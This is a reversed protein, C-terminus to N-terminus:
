VLQDDLQVNEDSLEDASVGILTLTNEGSDDLSIELDRGKQQSGALLEDLTEFSLGNLLISDSGADFDRIVDKGSQGSIEFTDRGSGGLLWDNGEGGALWDNGSGGNLVDSGEGGNLYDNGSGAVLLDNGQGGDLEDKGGEGFLQDDGQEGFLYDQHDGGHAIDNGTGAYIWDNGAGGQLQDAGERGYIQDDGEGGSLQDNGALGDLFDDGTGGSLVDAGLAGTLMGDEGGITTEVPVTTQGQLVTDERVALNQIRTDAEPETEESQYAQQQFNEKLYEALVDQETGPAAFESSGSDTLIQDLEVVNAADGNTATFEGFPYGDGGGALFNLTVIRINMEPAVALEGNEVLIQIVEGQENVLAASRIRAGAELTADFSFNVGSVQPFQGPTNGAGTAAVGHELVAVLQEATLTLLTLSNNFKLTNEIDLQSVEGDQKGSGPNAQPPLEQYNGDSSAEIAGIPARIGGGNKISVMVSDDHQRAAALNADATLNGVNTEETRVAERRGELFVDTKGLINSDKENVLEQVADTLDQVLDGKTGEAFADQDGWLANVTDETSAYAGSINADTVNGNDDMIINGDEDFDLVLRGVYSYQGDTSVIVATDGDANTTTFPYDEAATDGPLLDDTEDAQLTDSGGAIVVDIGHLMQVLEKELAIQQLHSVLIIKNIDQALLQDIVPQLVNALAQMDAPVDGNSVTTSGPSSIQALLPTTAGVVGIKEGGEELITAPAIKPAPTGSQAPGTLFDSAPLIQDTYLGSLNPDQGFDLNASLYPFQSGVWRDDGLGDGKYQPAIIEELAATGVDFEHNGLASADFGIANMISIDVRGGGERLSEYVEEGSLDYLKNYFDNFVDGDRFLGRDGSASFFPGSLYNDGASLTISNSHTDELADIIAAFNAARPIGEVGGELDSAHLIQLTYVPEGITVRAVLPDHDSAQDSFESNIHVVDLEANQALNNSVLIQDLVQANGQFNYTHVAGDDLTNILNTMVNESGSGAITDSPGEWQFSNFDGLVLVNADPDGAMLGDVFNNLAQAQDLREQYGANVFPQQAGYIPTSGFKSSLHVNVLDVAEGNFEFQAYLPKRTGDFASDLLREASGEVYDVREANYLYGVRINGGPQGGDAGDTPDIQIYEYSPSGANEIADILKQWSQDAAASGSNTSGDNDQVEQLALIDPSGLNATIQQALAEFRSDADGADLNEVNYSAVTLENGDGQLETTAKQLGGSTVSFAETAKVEYNGFNYDVVGTVNGLSDGVNVEVDFDPLVQRDIQIQVREPNLDGEALAIGGRSNLGTANDGNDAVTFIEGFRNKAAVAVADQVTVRMGELSEFFDISDSEHDFSQFNDDEVVTLPQSRGGEGIVVADPLTNGQSNVVLNSIGSLQTTSLNGSSAGGPTFEAVTGQLSIDDGAALQPASGTFVFLADSTADDGDAPGQLYFGNSELATVIGSTTVEQGVVSSTHSRGQIDYIAMTVPQDSGSGSQGAVQNQTNPTNVAKGEEAAGAGDLLGDGDYDNRIWDGAADSDVGDELRSAGGVTFTMDDFNKNLVTSSYLLDGSGGDHVAVSDLITGIPASDDIQGDRDADIFDGVEGTFGDVLLLTQSGNQLKNSSSLTWFGEANSTGLQFAGNIKGQNGNSDGEVSLLWLNSYDTLPDGLIEIFENSDFGAHNFVFENIVPTRTAM